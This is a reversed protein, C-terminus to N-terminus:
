DVVVLGDFSKKMVAKKMVTMPDMAEPMPKSVQDEGNGLDEWELEEQQEDEVEGMFVKLMSPSFGSMLAVGKRDHTVPVGSTPSTSSLDWYVIEPVQYGAEKYAKEIEDHNTSWDDVSPVSGLANDFQMDSFVFLRKIMDEQKVNNKVALPLLLRVFVAHLDTNMDWQTCMMENITKVLGREPDLEVFEPQCSFTIFGNSFPPKALRATILSLAVAPLIPLVRQSKVAAHINGMSGSVDCIALSSELAGSERLRQVLTEWQAEAVRLKAKELEIQVQNRANLGSSLTLVEKILQHPFLTAGSIKQKGKEV